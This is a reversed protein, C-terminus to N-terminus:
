PTRTPAPRGAVAAAALRSLAEERHRAHAGLATQRAISSRELRMLRWGRRLLFPM